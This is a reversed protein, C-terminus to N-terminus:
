SGGRQSAFYGEIASALSAATYQEPEIVVHMGREKAAHATIPGIAACKLGTCSLGHLHLIHVFNRVTSSSTFVVLDVRRQQLADLLYPMQPLRSPLVSRYTTVEEVYAGCRSLEEVLLARAGEARPLLVRKGALAHCALVQALGEARYDDPMVDVRLGLRELETKTEAGIAAIKARHWARLDLRLAQLRAVFSRVGNVSTFVLWDFEGARHLAQDLEAYSRPPAIEITPLPLVEAGESELREVLSAAQMRPRTVVILRGALSKQEFWQLRGRLEVVAGVVALAPPRIKAQEAKEAIDALTGLVTRQAARTGSEIVAVPTDPARGAAVLQEVNRRLQRQTMLIVVTHGPDTLNDWRVTPSAKHPDQYGTVFSVSSAMDRHTLPIGAYAPVAIAATVGPVVEVAIGQQKAVELEEGGRGFIFPDGGKLRVVLKGQRAHELLLRHIEEQEVRPGGGHKGVLFLEAEPRALELVVPNALYDYVIVDARELWWKGRLTLLGPDGPGAGVLVIRGPM